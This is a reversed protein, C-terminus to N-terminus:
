WATCRILSFVITSLVSVKALIKCFTISLFIWHDLLHNTVDQLFLTKKTFKDFLTLTERISCLHCIDSTSVWLCKPSRRDFVNIRLPWMWYTQLFAHVPIFIIRLNFNIRFFFDLLNAYEDEMLGKSSSTPTIHTLQGWCSSAWYSLSLFSATLVAVPVVFCIEMAAKFQLVPQCDSSSRFFLCSRRAKRLIICPSEGWNSIKKPGM